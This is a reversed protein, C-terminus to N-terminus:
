GEISSGLGKLGKSHVRCGFGWVRFWTVWVKM